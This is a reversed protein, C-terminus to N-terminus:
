LLQELTEILLRAVAEEGIHGKLSELPDHLSALHHNIIAHSAVTAFGRAVRRLAIIEQDIQERLRAIESQSM